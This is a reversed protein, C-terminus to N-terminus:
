SCVANQLPGCPPLLSLMKITFCYLAHVQHKLSKLIHTGVLLGFSNKKKKTFQQTYTKKKFSEHSPLLWASGSVTEHCSVKLILKLSNM